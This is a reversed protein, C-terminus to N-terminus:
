ISLKANRSFYGGIKGTGELAAIMGGVTHDIFDQFFYDIEAPAENASLSIRRTM